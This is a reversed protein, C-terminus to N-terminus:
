LVELVRSYYGELTYPLFHAFVLWALFPFSRRILTLYFSLWPAFPPGVLTCSSRPTLLHPPSPACRVAHGTLREGAVGEGRQGGSVRGQREEHVVGRSTVAKRGGRM